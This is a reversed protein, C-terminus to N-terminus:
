GCRVPVVIYIAFRIMHSVSTYLHSGDDSILTTMLQTCRYSVAHVTYLPLEWCDISVHTPILSRYLM